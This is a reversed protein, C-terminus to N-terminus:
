AAPQGAAPGPPEDGTFGDPFREAGPQVEPDTDVIRQVPQPQELRVSIVAHLSIEGSQQSDDWGTHGTCVLTVDADEPLSQLQGIIADGFANPVEQMNAANNGVVGIVEKPRGAANFSFSM